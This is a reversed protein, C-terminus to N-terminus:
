RRRASLALAVRSLAVVVAWRRTRPTIIIAVIVALPSVSFFVPLSLKAATGRISTRIVLEGIAILPWSSGAAATLIFIIVIGPSIGPIRFYTKKKQELRVGGGEGDNDVDM